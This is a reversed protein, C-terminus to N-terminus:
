SKSKLIRGEDALYAYKQMRARRRESRRAYAERLWKSGLNPVRSTATALREFAEAIVSAKKNVEKQLRKM